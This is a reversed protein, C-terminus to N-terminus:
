ADSPLYSSISKYINTASCSNCGNRATFQFVLINPIAPQLPTYEPLSLSRSWDNFGLLRILTRAPGLDQQATNLYFLNELHFCAIEFTILNPPLFLYATRLPINEQSYLSALLGSGSALVMSSEFTRCTARLEAKPPRDTGKPLSIYM